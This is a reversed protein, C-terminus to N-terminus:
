VDMLSELLAYTEFLAAVSLPARGVAWDIADRTSPPIPQDGSVLLGRHRRQTRQTKHLRHLRELTPRAAEAEILLPRAKGGPSLRHLRHGAKEADLGHVGAFADLIRQFRQDFSEKAGILGGIFHRAQELRDDAKPDWALRAVHPLLRHPGVQDVALVGIPVREVLAELVEADVWSSERAAPTDILLVFDRAVIEEMIRPQVEVAGEITETDRFVEYYHGHLHEYLAEAIASGDRRAYSIFVRKRRPAPAEGLQIRVAEAIDAGEAADTGGKPQWGKTNRGSVTPPTTGFDYTDLNEVVPLIPIQHDIAQKLFSQVEADVHLEPSLVAVVISPAALDPLELDTTIEADPHNRALLDRVRDRLNSADDRALFIITPRPPDTM